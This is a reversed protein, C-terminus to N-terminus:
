IYGLVGVHLRPECPVRDSPRESGVADSGPMRHGPKRMCQITLEEVEVRGSRVIDVKKQMGHVRHQEEPNQQARRSEEAAAEHHSRHERQM